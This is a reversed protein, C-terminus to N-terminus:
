KWGAGKKPTGRDSGINSLQTNVTRHTRTSHATSPPKGDGGRAVSSPKRLSSLPMPSPPPPLDPVNGELLHPFRPAFQSLGGSVVYTNDVGKQVLLNGAQVAARGGDHAYLIVMKSSERTGRYYYIDQPLSNSAHIMQSPPYSVAGRIHWTDYEEPPRCDLILVNRHRESVQAGSPSAVESHVVSAAGSRVSTAVSRADGNALAYVSEDEQRDIEEILAALTTPKLWQFYEDHVKVRANPGSTGEYQQMIKRTNSGSNIRSGVSEYRQSRAPVRKDLINANGISSKM